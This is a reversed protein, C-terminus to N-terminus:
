RDHTRSLVHDRTYPRDGPLLANRDNVVADALVGEEGREIAQARAAQHDAVAIGRTRHRRNRRELERTATRQEQRARREKMVRRLRRLERAPCALQELRDGAALDADVDALGIAQRFRRMRM